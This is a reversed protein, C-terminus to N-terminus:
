IKVNKRMFYSLRFIAFLLCLAVGALFGAKSGGELMEYINCCAQGVILLFTIWASAGLASCIGYKCLPVKMTGAVMLVGIGFGLGMTMKSIILIKGGHKRFIERIKEFVGDNLGFYKGYKDIIRPLGFYGLGYWSFDAVLDGLLLVVFAPVVNFYGHSILFGTALVVVPGEVISGVFIAPYKFEAIFDIFDM